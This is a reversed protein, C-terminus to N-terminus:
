SRARASARWRPRRRRRRRARPRRRAEHPVAVIVADRRTPATTSCCSATRRRGRAGPHRAVIRAAPRARAGGRRARAHLRQSRCADPHRHRVRRRRRPPRHPVGEGRAALSAEDAPLNLTPLAILNWLADIANASQGHARLWDGFTQRDLAPDAPDLRRLALAARVAALASARARAARLAAADLRPPAAGAPRHALHVGPRRGERLVPVRLRPQLPLSSPRRRAPAPVGLYATCCRLAVHQGNDLWLGNREFPSRRAASGRARRTSRSTPAARRRLELAAALGALGGGVVAVRAERTVRREARPQPALVLGKEWRRLSSAARAPRAVPEAAIRELLRRYKGAMALVCAASRRDLLPVLTSGASSGASGASRRSRSWSSSRARRLEGDRIACGFRELDERPLYVRGNALTRARRRAPHQRDPARRRPRRRAREGRERDSCDFVGLALRGISGAVCRCYRELDAFTAYEAGRVDLEAGDVLEGFADLPIPFRRAADAVAVLM